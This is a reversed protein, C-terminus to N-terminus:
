AGTASSAAGGAGGGFGGRFGFGSTCSGNTPASITLDQATIAGTSDATGTARACQGVVIAAATGTQTTTFATTAALTVTV